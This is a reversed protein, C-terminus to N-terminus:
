HPMKGDQASSDDSLYVFRSSMGTLYATTVHGALIQQSTQQLDFTGYIINDEQQSQPM